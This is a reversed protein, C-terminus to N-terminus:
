LAARAVLLVVVAVVLVWRAIQMRRRVRRQAHQTDAWSRWFTRDNM